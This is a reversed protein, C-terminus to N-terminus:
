LYALSGAQHGEGVVQGLLRDDGGHARGQRVGIGRALNKQGGSREGQQRQGLRPAEGIQGHIGFALRPDADIYLRLVLQQAHIRPAVAKIM